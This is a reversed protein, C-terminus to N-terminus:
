SHDILSSLVLILDDEEKPKLFIFSSLVLLATPVSSSTGVSIQHKTGDAVPPDELEDGRGNKADADVMIVKEAPPMSM